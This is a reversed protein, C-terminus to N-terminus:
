GRILEYRKLYKTFLNPRKSKIEQEIKKLVKPPVDKTYSFDQRGLSECHGPYNYLALCREKHWKIQEIFPFLYDFSDELFTLLQSFVEEPESIIDEYYVLLKRDEQWLDFLELLEFYNALYAVSNGHYQKKAKRFYLEKYDRVILILKDQSRILPQIGPTQVINRPNHHKIIPAKSFDVQMDPYQSGFPPNIASFWTKLEDPLSNFTGKDYQYSTFYRTSPRKTLYELAYRTWTNGSSPTSCLFIRPHPIHSFGQDNKEEQESYEEALLHLPSIKRHASHLPSLSFFLLCLLFSTLKKM